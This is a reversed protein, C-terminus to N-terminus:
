RTPWRGLDPLQAMALKEPLLRMVLHARDM